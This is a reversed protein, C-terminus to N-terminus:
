RIVASNESEKSFEVEGKVIELGMAKEREEMGEEQCEVAAGLM